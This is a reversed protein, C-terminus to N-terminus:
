FRCHVLSAAIHESLLFIFSVIRGKSEQTQGPPKESSHLIGVETESKTEYGTTEMVEEVPQSM